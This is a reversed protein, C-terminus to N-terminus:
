VPSLTWHEWARDPAGGARRYFAMAAENGPLVRWELRGGGRARAHALVRALLAAGIGRARRGADVYLEKLVLTPRLDFTFAQEVVIAYGVLGTDAQEAVFAVFQPVAGPALGRALLDAATVTFFEDYGEFRALERMLALLPEADAAVALRVRAADSM